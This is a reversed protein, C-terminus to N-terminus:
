FRFYLFPNYSADVIGAVSLLLVGILFLNEAVCFIGEATKGAWGSKRRCINWLRGALSKGFPTAAVALLLLLIGYNEFLYWTKASVLGASGFGTM